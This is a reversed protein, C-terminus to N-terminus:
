PGNVHVVRVVASEQVPIDKGRTTSLRIYQRFKKLGVQKFCIVSTEEFSDLYVYAEAFGPLKEVVPNGSLGVLQGSRFFYIFM